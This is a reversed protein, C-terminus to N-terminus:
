TKLERLLHDTLKSATPNLTARTTVFHRELDLRPHGGVVFSEDLYGMGQPLTTRLTM